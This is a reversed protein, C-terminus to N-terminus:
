GAYKQFQRIWSLSVEIIATLAATVKELFFGPGPELNSNGGVDLGSTEPNHELTGYFKM